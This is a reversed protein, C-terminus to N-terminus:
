VILPWCVQWCAHRVSSENWQQCWLLYVPVYLYGKAYIEQEFTLVM